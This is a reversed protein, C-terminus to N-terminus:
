NFISFVTCLVVKCLLSFISFYHLKAPNGLFNLFLAKQFKKNVGWDWENSAAGNSFMEFSMSNLKQPLASHAIMLIILTFFYFWNQDTIVVHTFFKRMILKGHCIILMSCMKTLNLCFFSRFIRYWNKRLFSHYLWNSCM